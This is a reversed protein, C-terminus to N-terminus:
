IVERVARDMDRRYAQNYENEKIWAAFEPTLNRCGMRQAGGIRGADRVIEVITRVSYNEADPCDGAIYNWVYAAASQYQSRIPEPITLHKM